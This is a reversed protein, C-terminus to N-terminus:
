KSQKLRAIEEELRAIYKEYVARIEEFTKEAYEKHAVIGDGNHVNNHVNHVTNYVHKEKAQLLEGIDTELVEAIEAMRALTLNVQGAEIKSYGRQGIGLKEGLYQQTLNRTERLKRINGGIEKLDVM